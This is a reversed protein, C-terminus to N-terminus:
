ADVSADINRRRRRCCWFCTFVILIVAILSSGIPLIFYFFISRQACKKRNCTLGKQCNRAVDCAGGEARLRVCMSNWCTYGDACDRDFNSMKCKSNDLGRVACKGDLCRLDGVCDELDDCNLSKRSPMLCKCESTKVVCEGREVLPICKLPDMCERNHTCPGVWPTSGGSAMGLFLIFVIVASFFGKVSLGM